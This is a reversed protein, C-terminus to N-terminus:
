TTGNAIGSTIRCVFANASPTCVVCGPALTFIMQVFEHNSGALSFFAASLRLEAPASTIPWFTSLGAVPWYASDTPM